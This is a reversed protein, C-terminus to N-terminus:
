EKRPMASGRYPAHPISRTEGGEPLASTGAVADEAELRGAPAPEGAISENDVRGEPGAAMGGDGPGVSRFTSGPAADPGQGVVRRGPGLVGEARVREGRATQTGDEWFEVDGDGGLTGRRVLPPAGDRRALLGEGTAAPAGPGGDSSFIRLHDAIVHRNRCSPCAVLVSGHHYAQKTITHASRAGCPVCTFTLEYRPPATAGAAAGSAEPDKDPRTPALAGTTSPPAASPRPITHAARVPTTPLRRPLRPVSAPRLAPLLPPSIWRNSHPKPSLFSLLSSVRKSAM